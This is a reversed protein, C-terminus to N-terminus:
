PTRLGQQRFKEALAVSYADHNHPISVAASSDFTGVLHEIASGDIKAAPVVRLTKSLRGSLFGLLAGLIMPLMTGLFTTLTLADGLTLILIIAPITIVLLALIAFTWAGRSEENLERRTLVFQVGGRDYHLYVESASDAGADHDVYTVQVVRNM